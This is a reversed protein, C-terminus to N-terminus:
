AVLDSEDWVQREQPIWAQIIRDTEHDRTEGFLQGYRSVVPKRTRSNFKLNMRIRGFDGSIIVTDRDRMYSKIEKYGYVAQPDENIWGNGCNLCRGRTNRSPEARVEKIVCGNSRSNSCSWTKANTKKTVEKKAPKKAM